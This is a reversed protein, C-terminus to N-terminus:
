GLGRGVGVGVGGSQGGVRVRRFILTEPISVRCKTKDSDDYLSEFLWSADRAVVKAAPSALAATAAPTAM